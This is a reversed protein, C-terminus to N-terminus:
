AAQNPTAAFEGAEMEALSQVMVEVARSLDAETLAGICGIRFAGQVAMPGPYIDFDKRKMARYLSEFSFRLDEPVRFAALIPAALEDPLLTEFGAQRMLTVLQRRNNRYRQLRAAVGGERQHERLAQAVAAVVHTPPTFRFCDTRELHQNQDWLDLSLSGANGKCADLLARDALVWALGPPGELCKNSSVAIAQWGLKRMDLSLAGFTAIADILFVKDYTRCVEAIEEIPNLIGSSTECHVMMVHTIAPDQALARRFLRADPRVLPPTRLVAHPTGMGRCIAILTDGYVGNSHILLKGSRPVFTRILAENAYTGSGALPVATGLREANALHLLYRRAFRLDEKLSESGFSRDRLMVKKTSLPLSVPGPTLLLGSALHENM